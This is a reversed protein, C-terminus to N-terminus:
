AALAADPVLMVYASEVRGPWDTSSRGLTRTRTTRRLRGLDDAVDGVRLTLARLIHDPPERIRAVPLSPTVVHIQHPSTLARVPTFGLVAHTSAARPAVMRSVPGAAIHGVEVGVVLLRHHPRLDKGPRQGHDEEHDREAREDGGPQRKEQRHDAEGGRCADEEEAGLEHVDRDPRHVERRHECDREPDVVREEHDDAEALRECAPGIRTLRGTDRHLSGPLGDERAAEGDEGREKATTRTGLGVNRVTGSPIASETHKTSAAESVSSGATSDL